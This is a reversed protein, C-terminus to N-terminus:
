KGAALTDRMKSVTVTSIATAILTGPLCVLMVIALLFIALYEVNYSFYYLALGFAVFSFTISFGIIMSLIKENNATDKPSLSAYGGITIALMVVCLAIGVIFSANM